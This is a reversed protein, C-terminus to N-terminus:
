HLSVLKSVFESTYKVAATFSRKIQTGATFCNDICVTPQIRSLLSEILPMKNSFMSLSIGIFKLRRVVGTLAVREILLCAGDRFKYTVDIFIIAFCGFYLQLLRNSPLNVLLKRILCFLFSVKIFKKATEVTLNRWNFTFNAKLPFFYFFFCDWWFVARVFSKRIYFYYDM